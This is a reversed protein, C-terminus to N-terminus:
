LMLVLYSSVRRVEWHEMLVNPIVLLTTSSQILSRQFEQESKKQLLLAVSSNPKLSINSASSRLSGLQERKFQVLLDQQFRNLLKKAARHVEHSGPNYVMANRFCLEVDAVFLNFDSNDVGYKEKSIKNHIENICIPNQIM